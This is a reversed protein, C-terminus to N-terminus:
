APVASVYNFFSEQDVATKNRWFAPQGAQNVSLKFIDGSNDWSLVIEGNVTIAMRPAPTQGLGNILEIVAKRGATTPLLDDEDAREHAEKCLAIVHRIGAEKWNTMAKALEPMDLVRRESIEKLGYYMLHVRFIRLLTQWGAYNVKGM